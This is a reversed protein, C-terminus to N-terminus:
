QGAFGATRERVFDIQQQVHGRTVRLANLFRVDGDPVNGARQDFFNAKPFLGSRGFLVPFFRKATMSLSAFFGEPNM